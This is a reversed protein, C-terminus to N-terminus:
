ACEIQPVGPQTKKHVVQPVPRMQFPQRALAVQTERAFAGVGAFRVSEHGRGGAWRAAAAPVDDAGHVRCARAPQPRLATRTPVLPGSAPGPAPVTQQHQAAPSEPLPRGANQGPCPGHLSKGRMLVATTAELSTAPLKRHM